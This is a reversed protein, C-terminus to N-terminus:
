RRQNSLPLELIISTGHNESAIRLSGKWGLAISKASLLGLGHGGKKTSYPIGKEYNRLAIQPMGPGNDTITVVVRPGHCTLSVWVEGPKDAAADFANTLLNSIVCEFVLPEVHCRVTFPLDPLNLNLKNNPKAKRAILQERVVAKLLPAIAVPKIPPTPNRLAEPCDLLQEVLLQMRHLAQNAIIREEEGLNQEQNLLLGLSALPSLMDHALQRTKQQSSPKM